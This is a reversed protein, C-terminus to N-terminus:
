ISSTVQNIDEEVTTKVKRKQMYRPPIISPFMNAWDIRKKSGLEKIRAGAILMDKNYELTKRILAQLTTDTYLQEWPFDGISTSDMSMSDLVEPMTMQPRTYHKGLQCSGLTTTLIAIFTLKLISAIHKM